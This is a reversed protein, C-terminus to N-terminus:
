FTKPKAYPKTNSNGNANENITQERRQITTKIKQKKINVLTNVKSKSIRTKGM